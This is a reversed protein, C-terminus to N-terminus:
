SVFCIEIFKLTHFNYWKKKGLWLPILRSTLQLFFYNFLLCMSVLCCAVLFWHILSSILSNLFYRLAFWFPLVVSWFRYSSGFARKFFFYPWPWPMHINGPWPSFRIWLQLLRHQLQPLMLDKLGSYQALSWVWAEVIVQAVSTPNKVWQLVTPLGFFM